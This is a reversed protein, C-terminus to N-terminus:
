DECASPDAQSPWKGLVHAKTRSTYTHYKHANLAATSSGKTLGAAPRPWAQLAENQASIFACLESSPRRREVLRPRITSEGASSSSTKLKQEQQNPHQAAIYVGRLAALANMRPCSVGLSTSQPRLGRVCNCRSTLAMEGSCTSQDTIYIYSVQSCPTSRHQQRENIGSCVKAM